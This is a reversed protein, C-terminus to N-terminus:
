RALDRNHGPRSWLAWADAVATRHSDEKSTFPRLHDQDIPRFGTGSGQLAGNLRFPAVAEHTASTVLAVSTSRM